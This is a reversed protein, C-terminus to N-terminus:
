GFIDALAQTPPGDKWDRLEVYLSGPIVAGVGSTITTSVLNIAMDAFTLRSGSAAFEDAGGYTMVTLVGILSVFLFYMVLLILTLGFIKWRVGRTLDRSRGLAEIPGLGEAVLSPAAVSWMVYLIVGPVILLAFGIPLALATLLGLLFLPAAAHLGTTVSEGLGAKRGESFALTARVLAGQTIMWSLIYVLFAFVGFGIVAGMGVGAMSALWLSQLNQVAYLLAVSPLASFLFAIGLTALPNGGITGFARSFIRGISVDRDGRDTEAGAM